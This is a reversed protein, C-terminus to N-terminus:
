AVHRDVRLGKLIGPISGILKILAWIAALVGVIIAAIADTISVLFGPVIGHLFSVVIGALLATLVLLVLGKVEIFQQQALVLFIVMAIKLTMIIGLTIRADGTDFDAYAAFYAITGFPVALLLTVMLMLLALAVFILGICGLLLLLMSVFTIIGQIAGLVRAPVILALGFMGITFLLIGDVLALYPVGLGPTPLDLETHAANGIFGLSGLEILVIVFGLALAIILFPTRLSDM